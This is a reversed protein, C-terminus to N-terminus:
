RVGSEVFEENYRVFNPFEASATSFSSSRNLNNWDSKSSNLDICTSSGVNTGSPVVAASKASELWVRETALNQLLQCHLM